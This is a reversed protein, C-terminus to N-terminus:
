PSHTHGWGSDKMTGSGSGIVYYSKTDETVKSTDLWKSYIDTNENLAKTFDFATSLSAEEFWGKFEYGEKTPTWETAKAGKNIKENKLETRGDYWTVTIQTENGTNGGGGGTGTNGGDDTKGGCGAFVATMSVAMAFAVFLSLWKKTKM